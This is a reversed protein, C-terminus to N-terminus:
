LHYTFPAITSKIISVHFNTQYYIIDKPLNKAIPGDASHAMVFIAAIEFHGGFVYDLCKHTIIQTTTAMKQEYFIYFFFFILFVCLDYTRYFGEMTAVM